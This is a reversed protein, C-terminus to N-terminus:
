IHDKMEPPLTFKPLLAYIPAGEETEAAATSNPNPPFAGQIGALQSTPSTKNLTTTSFPGAVNVRPTSSFRAYDDSTGYFKGMRSQSNKLLYNLKFTSKVSNLRTSLQHLREVQGDDM